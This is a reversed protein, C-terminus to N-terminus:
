ILCRDDMYSVYNPNLKIAWKFASEGGSWDWEYYLKSVGLEHQAEALTDDPELAKTGAALM